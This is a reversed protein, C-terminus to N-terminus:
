PYPVLRPSRDTTGSPLRLRYWPRDGFRTRLVENHEGIDAVFVIPGAIRGDSGIENRLLAPGYSISEGGTADVM